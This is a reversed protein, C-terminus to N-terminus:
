SDNARRMRAEVRASNMLEMDIIEPYLPYFRDIDFAYQRAAQELRQRVDVPLGGLMLLRPALREIYLDCLRQQDEEQWDESILCPPFNESNSIQRDIWVARPSSGAREEILRELRYNIPPVYEDQEVSQTDDIKLQASPMAFWLLEPTPTQQNYEIHTQLLALPSNDQSDLLWYEYRDAAAFPVTATILTEYLEQVINRIADPELVPHIPQHKLTKQEITAVLSYNKRPDDSFSNDLQDPDVLAYRIAWNEGDLSIARARGFDAIQVVGVFPLLLRRSYMRIM